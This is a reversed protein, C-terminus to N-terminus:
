YPTWGKPKRTRGERFVDELNRKLAPPSSPWVVPKPRKAVAMLHDSLEARAAARGERQAATWRARNNKGLVAGKAGHKWCVRYWGGDPKRMCTLQCRAGRFQPDRKATRHAQCQPGRLLWFRIKAAHFHCLGRELHRGLQAAIRNHVETRM